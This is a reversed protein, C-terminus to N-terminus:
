IRPGRGGPPAARSNVLSAVVVVSLSYLFIFRVSNSSYGTRDSADIAPVMGAMACTSLPGGALGCYLYEVGIGGPTAVGSLTSVRGAYRGARHSQLRRVPVAQAIEASSDSGM